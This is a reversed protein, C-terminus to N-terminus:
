RNSSRPRLAALPRFGEAPRGDWPSHRFGPPETGPMFVDGDAETLQEQRITGSLRAGQDITLTVCTLNGEILAGPRLHIHGARVPGKIHGEVNVEEASAEGEITGDATVTIAAARVHGRIWGDIQVEGESDINGNLTAGYAVLTPPAPEVPASSEKLNDNGARKTKRFFM